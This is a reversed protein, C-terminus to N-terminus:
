REVFLQAVAYAPACRSLSPGWLQSLSIVQSERPLSLLDNGHGSLVITKQIRRHAKAWQTIPEAIRRKASAVVQEALGIAQQVSVSRRDLGITRAIRNAAYSIARPKGDASECDAPAEPQSGLLIRADDITAFVENMLPVQKGEFSLSECIACVPTRRCGVYVLSGECLREFDTMALTAIRGDHLPIVDTTTSGIDVLLGNPCVQVAVFRALAHWNAAALRDADVHFRIEERFHHDTAYFYCRDVNCQKAAVRAHEVIHKVGQERDVFCDALEGTMVVAIADPRKFHGIAEALRSALEAPHEWLPFEVALSHRNTDAFKLNAGGIDIGLVTKM